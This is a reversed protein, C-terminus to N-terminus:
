ASELSVALRAQEQATVWTAKCAACRIVGTGNEQLLAGGCVKEEVPLRCSGIRKNAHDRVAARLAQRLDTLETLYDDVWLQAAIWDHHRELLTLQALVSKPLRMPATYAVWYARNRIIALRHRTETLPREEALCLLWGAVVSLVPPIPASQDEALRSPHSRPDRLALVELNAPAPAEAAKLHRTKPTEDKPATGAEVIFALDYWLEAVQGTTATLRARHWACLLGVERARYIPGNEDAGHDLVCTTENM